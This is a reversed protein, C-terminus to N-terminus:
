PHKATRPPPNASSKLRQVFWWRHGEHDIAQYSRDTWFDDGYDNTMPEVAITAGHARAHACHAEVDDVFIMIGGTNAGDLERPSRWAAGDGREPKPDGVMVLGCSDAPGITLESHEIRGGEGEVRLRVDFGFVEVLFDIAKAANTYQLSCSLRPWGKPAPRKSATPDKTESM